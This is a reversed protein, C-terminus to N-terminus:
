KLLNISIYESTVRVRKPKIMNVATNRFSQFEGQGAWINQSRGDGPPPSVGREGGPKSIKALGRGGIPLSGGRGLATNCYVVDM